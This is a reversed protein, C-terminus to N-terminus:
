ERVFTFKRNTFEDNSLDMDLVLSDKSLKVISLVKEKKPLVITKENEYYKWQTSYKFLRQDILISDQSIRLSNLPLSVSSLTDVRPISEKKVLKWTGFLSIPKEHAIEQEEFTYPKNGAMYDTVYVKNGALSDVLAYHIGPEEDSYLDSEFVLFTYNNIHQIEWYPKMLLGVGKSHSYMVTDNVYDHYIKEQEQFTVYEKGKPNWHVKKSNTPLRRFVTHIPQNYNSTMVLNDKTVKVEVTSSADDGYTLKGNKLTFNVITDMARGQANIAIKKVHVTNDKFNFFFKSGSPDKFATKDDGDELFQYYVQIWAGEINPDPNLKSKCSICLLIVLVLSTLSTKFM